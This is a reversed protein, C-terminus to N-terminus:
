GTIPWLVDQQQEVVSQGDRATAYKLTVPTYRTRSAGRTQVEITTVHAGIAPEGYWTARYSRMIAAAPLGGWDCLARLALVCGIGLPAPSREGTLRACQALMDDTVLQTSRFFPAGSPPILGTV